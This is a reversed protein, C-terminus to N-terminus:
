EQKDAPTETKDKKGKGNKKRKPLFKTGKVFYIVVGGLILVSVVILVIGVIKTTDLSSPKDKSVVFTRHFTGTNGCDDTVTLTLTYTGATDFKYRVKGDGQSDQQKITSNNENTVSVSVTVYEYKEGDSGSTRVNFGYNDEVYLDQSTYNDQGSIRADPNIVLENNEGVVFGKNLKDMLNKTLYIVPVETDGVYIDIIENKEASYGNLDKASYTAVYHGRKTPTFSFYNVGMHSKMELKIENQGGTVNGKSDIVYSVDDPTKITINGNAGLSDYGVEQYKDKASFGPLNVSPLKNESWKIKIGDKNTGGEIGNDPDPDGDKEDITIKSGAYEGYEGTPYQKNLEITPKSTDKVTVIFSKSSANDREDIATLTITYVDVAQPNFVFTGNDLKSFWNNKYGTKAGKVEWSLNIKDTSSNDAVKIDSIYYTEGLEITNTADTTGSIVPAETDAAKSTVFTLATINNTGMDCLEYTITYNEAETAIFSIGPFYYEYIYQDKDVASVALDGPIASTEIKNISSLLQNRIEKEIKSRNAEGETEVRKDIIDKFDSFTLSQSACVNGNSDVVRIGKLYANQTNDYYRIGNILVKDGQNFNNEDGAFTLKEYIVPALSDEVYKISIPYIAYGIHANGNIATEIDKDNLQEITLPMDNGAFDDYAIAVVRLSKDKDETALEYITKEVGGVDVKDSTKFTLKNNDDLKIEKYKNNAEVYYKVLIRTDVDDTVRPKAISIQQDKGINGITTATTFKVEPAEKDLDEQATNEVLTFTFKDGTNNPTYGDNVRFEITYDGAFFLRPDITITATASTKWKKVLNLDEIKKAEYIKKVGDVEKIYYKGNPRKTKDEVTVGDVEKEIYIRNETEDIALHNNKIDPESVATGNETTYFDGMAYYHNEPLNEGFNFKVIDDIFIESSNLSTSFKTQNSSSGDQLSISFNSKVEDNIKFGNTSSITKFITLENFSKNNDEAFLAPITIKTLNSRDTSINYKTPIMYSYDSEKLYKKLEEGYLGEVEDDKTKDLNDFNYTNVLYVDPSTRDSVSVDYDYDDAFADTHGDKKSVKDYYFDQANYYINFKGIVKPIFYIGGDDIGMIVKSSDDYVLTDKNKEDVYAVKYYYYAPISNRNANKNVTNVTPLYTKKGVSTASSRINSSVSVGVNINDRNYSHSGDISKSISSLPMTVSSSGSSNTEYLRYDIFNLGNGAVFRYAYDSYNYIKDMDLQSHLQEITMVNEKTLVVSNSMAAKNSVKTNIAVSFEYKGNPNETTSVNETEFTTKSLKRIQYTSYKEYVNKGEADAPHESVSVPSNNKDLFINELTVYDAVIYYSNTEDTELVLHKIQEGQGDYFLPLAIDVSKDENTLNQNTDIQDPMVIPNNTAFEISFQEAAVNISYVNSTTWVGQEPNSTNTNIAYQVTYTGIQAPTFKFTNPHDPDSSDLKVLEQIPDSGVDSRSSGSETEGEGEPTTPNSNEPEHVIPDGNEDLLNVGYPNKIIITPNTEANVGTVKGDTGVTSSMITSPIYVAEGGKQASNPINSVTIVKGNQTTSQNHNNNFNPDTSEKVNNTDANVRVRAFLSSVNLISSSLSVCCTVVAMSGALLLKKIRTM